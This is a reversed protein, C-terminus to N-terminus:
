PKGIEGSARPSKPNATACNKPMCAQEMGTAIQKVSIVAAEIAAAHYADSNPPAATQGSTTTVSTKRAAVRNSIRQQAAPRM